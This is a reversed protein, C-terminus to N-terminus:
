EALSDPIDRSPVQAKLGIPVFHDLKEKRGPAIIPRLIIFIFHNLIQLPEYPM